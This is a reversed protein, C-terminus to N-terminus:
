GVKGISIQGVRRTSALAQGYLLATAHQPRLPIHLDLYKLALSLADARDARLQPYRAVRHAFVQAALTRRLHRGDELSSGQSPAVPDNARTYGM